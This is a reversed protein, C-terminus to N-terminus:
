LRLERLRSECPTRHKAFWQMTLKASDRFSTKTGSMLQDDQRYHGVKQRPDPADHGLVDHPNRPPEVGAM